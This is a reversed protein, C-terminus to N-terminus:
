CDVVLIICCCVLSVLSCIMTRVVEGFFHQRVEENCAGKM